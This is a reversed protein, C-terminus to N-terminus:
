HKWKHYKRVWSQIDKVTIKGPCATNSVDGHRLIKNEGLKFEAMLGVLLKVLEKKQYESPKDYLFNGTLCIGISKFNMGKERAHAGIDKWARTQKIWGDGIVYHYGVYFGLSSKPFERAKHWADIQKLTTKTGSASHHIVLFQIKNM